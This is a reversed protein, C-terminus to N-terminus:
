RLSVQYGSFAGGGSWFEYTNVGNSYVWESGRAGENYNTCRYGKAKLQSTIGNFGKETNIWVQAENKRECLYVSISGNSYQSYTGEYYDPDGVFGNYYYDFRKVFKFGNDSTVFKYAANYNYQCLKTLLDLNGSTVSTFKRNTAKLSVHFVKGKANTITATMSKRGHGFSIDYWDEEVKGNVNCIKFGKITSNKPNLYLYADKSNAGLKNLTSEYAYKGSVSGDTNFSLEMIVAYKGAVNGDYTITEGFVTLSLILAVFILILKRSM